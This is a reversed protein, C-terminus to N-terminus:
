EGGGNAGGALALYADALSGGPADTLVDLGYVATTDAATQSERATGSARNLDLSLVAGLGLGLMLVAAAAFRMPPTLLDPFSLISPQVPAQQAALSRLREAFGRPVDPPAPLQALAESAAQLREFAKRCADCANVHSEIRGREAVSMEGDLYRSLKSQTNRCNM